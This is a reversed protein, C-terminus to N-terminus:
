EPHSHSLQPTLSALSISAQRYPPFVPQKRIRGAIQGANM